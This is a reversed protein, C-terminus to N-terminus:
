GTVVVNAVPLHIMKGDPSWDGVPMELKQGGAVDMVVGRSGLYRRDANCARNACADYLETFAIQEVVLEQASATSPMLAEAVSIAAILSSVLPVKM